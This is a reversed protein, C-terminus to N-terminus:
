RSVSIIKFVWLSSDMIELLWIDPTMIGQLFEADKFHSNDMGATCTNLDGVLIVYLSCVIHMTDNPNWGSDTITLCRTQFVAILILWDAFCLVTDAGKGAANESISFFWHQCIVTTEEHYDVSFVKVIVHLVYRLMNQLNCSLMVIVTDGPPWHTAGTRPSLISPRYM